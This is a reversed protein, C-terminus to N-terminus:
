TNEKVHLNFLEVNSSVSAMCTDLTTLNERLDSVTARTDVVAKAMLIKFSLTVVAVGDIRFKDFEETIKIHGEDTLTKSLYTCMQSNNQPRRANANMYTVVHYRINEFTLKSHETILNINIGNSDPM